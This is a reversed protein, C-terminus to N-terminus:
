DEIPKIAEEALPEEQKVSEEVPTQAAEKEQEQEILINIFVQEKIKLLVKVLADEMQEPTVQYNQMFSDVWQQVITQIELRQQLQNSM